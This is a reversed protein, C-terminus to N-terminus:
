PTYISGVARMADPTLAVASVVAIGSCQFSATLGYNSTFEVSFRSPNQEERSILLERIVNQNNFGEVEVFGIDRFRLTVLTHNKNVFHGDRDIDTTRQFLHVKVELFPSHAGRELLVSIIEGDHFSPWEGFVAAVVGSNTIEALVDDSV